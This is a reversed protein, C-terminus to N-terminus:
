PKAQRKLPFRFPGVYWCYSGIWKDADAEAEEKTAYEIPAYYIVSVDRYMNLWYERSM